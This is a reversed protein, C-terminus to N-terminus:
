RILLQEAKQIKYVEEAICNKQSKLWDDTLLAKFDVKVQGGDPKDFKLLFYPGTEERSFVRGHAFADRLAVPTKDILFDESFERVCNNYKGILIDLTDYNTMANVSVMEGLQMEDLNKELDRGKINVLFSRLKFELSFLNTKIRGIGLVYKELGNEM